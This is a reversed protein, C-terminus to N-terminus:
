NVKGFYAVFESPSCVYLKPMGCYDVLALSLTNRNELIIQQDTIFMVCDLYAAELVPSLAIAHDDGLINRHVLKQVHIETVDRQIDSYTTLILDLTQPTELINQACAGTFRQTGHKRRINELKQLVTPVALFLFKANKLLRHAEVYIPINAQIALLVGSDLAAFRDAM